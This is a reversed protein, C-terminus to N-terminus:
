RSEYHRLSKAHTGIQGYIRKPGNTIRRLACKLYRGAGPQNVICHKCHKCKKGDGFLGLAVVMPNPDKLELENINFLEM